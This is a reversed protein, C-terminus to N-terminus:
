SCSCLGLLSALSLPLHNLLAGFLQSLSQNDRVSDKLGANIADEITKGECIIEIVKAVTM